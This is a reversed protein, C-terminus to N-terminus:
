PATVEVAGAGRAYVSWPDGASARYYVFVHYGSGVPASVTVDRAYSASGDADFVDGGYWGNADSVLWVSFQAPSGVPLNPTWAVSLKGGQAVGTPTSPTTVALSSFAATVEVAGAGRAYVSWPDGASARYYVFVHYGSGVPASVTVDRAYSASGDADFVDGGYWGNADSVLWVSFQAPAGVPLNPTWAVSLKGGQAVGTPTSPTTVALSSFAATVEVAGAGRAYVSWPDGASARYYVFVHYGSGVPASVTVDRAYSASGDADFVDGGYWGNADSVLWVSFQAPSGVPLNPTWAVSLKGGQAVGTPTSPTTVALSSFAATVEVAGAGRAYVSWPDGASARYYVFVHYGSGVPASVTVDRAYSASGDADFVDGGYWGNADSVLWVSFQAPSGVPLNPTWAVSLKGGQAVGTPTSPTTVALSSFAATVEVAGAGRAYVSWPDGASARYYVFVHYGSGVPASVTVDRAYSASGDADFVDGGYWGNADSVLWVSFQAPSGVPLNPTWAVSLKGGQAVGTPTSPTTVALSSFATSPEFSAVISHGRSVHTFTYTGDTLVAPSGDVLVGAVQHYADPTVTFSQDDGDNVNVAGSPTISGGGDAGVSANIVYTTIPATVPVSATATGGKDDIVTLKAAYAGPASYVHRVSAGSGSTGDGFNWAYAVISGDPDTSSAASFDVALAPAGAAHIARATATPAQNVRPLVSGMVEIESLGVNNTTASAEDVALSLSTVTRGGLDLTLGSGDNPLAGITLTSGDSFTLTGATIQDDLNPRDHLVISNVSVPCPWSLTLWAGAKQALSSWESQSDTPYGGVVGDVASRAAQGAEANQSSVTVTALAAINPGSATPQSFDQKWFIEDLHVFRTLWGDSGLALRKLNTAPDPTQMSPPVVLSEREDWSLGLATLAPPEVMTTAPDMPLPWVSSDTPWVITKHLEPHYTPDVTMTDLMAQRVFLFTATHDLHQDSESTTYVADPRYTAMILDLDRLVNPANYAAPSGFRYSHYDVRGLGRDGYTTSQQNNDTTLAGAPDRYDNWIRGLYGDPYGLFMLDDESTGIDDTQARVAEDERDYGVTLGNLDGNTMYVIKVSDGRDLAARAVGSGYVLDDDPHPAVILVTRGTPTPQTIDATTTAVSDLLYNGADADALGAGTLSVTKNAGVDKDAFAATGGALRVADGTIAGSLSRTLVSAVPTGDWTKDAATFSGTVHKASIVATTAATTGTLTYNGADAGGTVAIGSVSVPKASGVNKDAFAASAYSLTLADAALKDSSLTVTAGATGDYVRDNGTGTVTLDRAGITASTTGVTGVDYNAADAGTLLFAAKAASVVRTGVNKSAFAGKAGDALGVTVAESDVVGATIAPASIGAVTTGDYTKDAAAFAITLGRASITATTAATTNTLSYNGADAGGAVAIGGVSVPKVSGVNKDAFAASAYSLTLADAAVKDSSLTVTAGATGDYARDNGTATVTLDRASVTAKTTGVSDLVYNGADAGALSAGTLTVTKDIGVNKDAFSASGGFLSVSDLLVADWLNTSLVTTAATGNYTKDAATFTGTIHRAAISATLGGPQSVTYNPAETGGLAVGSVTVAKASGVNKNAFSATYAGSDITVNGTDASVVGVLGASGFDVAATALGDYTKGLAAAGTITLGKKGISATTSATTNALIYEGADAGGLSIGGVSVAKAVGANKDAFAASTYALTVTDGTLIGTTALHATAGATGDYTKGDATATVTLTRPNLAVLQAVWPTTAGATSTLDGTAGSAAMDSAGGAPGSAGASIYTRSTMGAPTSLTVGNGAGLLAVTTSNAPATVGTATLTTGSGNNVSSTAIPHTVDVGTYRLIGGAARTAAGGFNITFSYNTSETAAAVKWYVAQGVTTGNNVRSVLNWGSPATITVSSGGTVTIQAVLLDNQATGSPKTLSISTGTVISAINRSQYTISAWAPTSSLVVLLLAVVIVFVARGTHKSRM